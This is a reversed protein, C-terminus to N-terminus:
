AAAADQAPEAAKKDPKLAAIQEKEMQGMAALAYNVVDKDDAFLGEPYAAELRASYNEFVVAPPVGLLDFMLPWLVGIIASVDTQLVELDMVNGQMVAMAHYLLDVSMNNLALLGETKTMGVLKVKKGAGPVKLKLAKALMMVYYSVGGFPTYAEEIWQPKMQNGLLFPQMSQLLAGVETNLGVIAHLVNTGVIKRTANQLGAKAVRASVTRSVNRKFQNSNMM